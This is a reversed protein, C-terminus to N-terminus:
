EIKHKVYPDQIKADRGLQKERKVIEDYLYEAYLMAEPHNMRRRMEMFIPSMKEWYFWVPSSMLQSVVEIDILGQKLIVGLGEFFLGISSSVAQAKPNTVRGYKSDYDDYDEWERLLVENFNLRFEVEQFRNFIQMFLQAQRTKNQNRIQLSYYTLAIIMGIGTLMISITQYDVM